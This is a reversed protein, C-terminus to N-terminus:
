RAPQGTAPNSRCPKDSPQDTGHREDDELTDQRVITLVRPERPDFQANCLSRSQHIREDALLDSRFTDDPRYVSSPLGGDAPGRGEVKQGVDHTTRRAIDRIPSTRSIEREDAKRHRAHQPWGLRCLSQTLIETM